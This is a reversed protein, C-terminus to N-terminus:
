WVECGSWLKMARQCDERRCSRSRQKNFLPPSKFQALEEAERCIPDDDEAWAVELERVGLDHTPTEQGGQVSRKFFTEGGSHFTWFGMAATIFSGVRSCITTTEKGSHSGGRGVYVVHGGRAPHDPRVRFKYVGKAWPIPPHNWGHDLWHAVALWESWAGAM